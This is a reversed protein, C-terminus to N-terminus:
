VRDQYEFRKKLMLYRQYSDTLKGPPVTEGLHQVLVRRAIRHVEDEPLGTMESLERSTIPDYKQKLDIYALYDEIETDAALSLAGGVQALIGAGRLRAWVEEADALSLGARPALWGPSAVEPLSRFGAADGSAAGARLIEVARRAGSEALFNLLHRNAERLRQSLRKMVRLAIEGHERVMQEFTGKDLVLLRSEESAVATASRPQNDLLSMEGFCDGPGLHAITFDADGVSKVIRVHGGGIIYMQEGHEGERFLVTGAPVRTTYRELKDTIM